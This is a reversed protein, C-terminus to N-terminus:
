QSFPNLAAEPHILYNRSSSQGRRACGFIDDGVRWSCATEGFWVTLNTYGALGFGMEIEGRHEELIGQLTKVAFKETVGEVHTSVVLARYRTSQNNVHGIEANPFYEQIGALVKGDVTDGVDCGVLVISAVVAAVAGITKM